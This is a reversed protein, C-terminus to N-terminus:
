QLRSFAGNYKKSRVTLLLNNTADKEEFTIEVVTPNYCITAAHVNDAIVVNRPWLPTTARILWLASSQGIKLIPESYYGCTPTYYCNWAWTTHWLNTIGCLDSMTLWLIFHRLVICLRSSGVVGNWWHGSSKRTPLPTAFPSALCWCPKHFNKDSFGM